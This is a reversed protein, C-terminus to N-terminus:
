IHVVYYPNVERMIVEQNEIKINVSNFDAGIGEIFLGHNPDYSFKTVARLDEPMDVITFQESKFDFRYIENEYFGLYYDSFYTVSRLLPVNYNSNEIYIHNNDDIFLELIPAQENSHHYIKDKSILYRNKGMPVFQYEINRSISSYFWSPITGMMQFQIREGKSSLSYWESVGNFSANYLLRSDPLIFSPPDVFFADVLYGDFINYAVFENLTSHKYYYIENVSDFYQNSYSSHRNLNVSYTFELTGENNSFLILNDGSWDLFYLREGTENSVVGQGPGNMDVYFLNLDEFTIKDSYDKLKTFLTGYESFYQDNESVSIQHIKGTDKEVIVYYSDYPYYSEVGYKSEPNTFFNEAFQIFIFNGKTELYIPYYDIEYDVISGFENKFRLDSSDHNDDIMVLEPLDNNLGLGINYVGELDFYLDSLEYKLTQFTFRNTETYKNGDIIYSFECVFDYVTNSKLGSIMQDTPLDELVITEDDSTITIKEVTVELDFTYKVFDIQIDHYGKDVLNVEAIKASKFTYSQHIIVQSGEGDLLDMTSAVAIRYNKSPLLQDFQIQNQGPNLEVFDLMADYYFLYIVPKSSNREILNDNDIVEVNANYQFQNFTRNGITIQISNEYRVAMSITRDGEFEADKIDNSINEVYKIEDITLERVGSVDGANVKVILVESTSGEEFEFSQYVVGNLTFRLIVQSDPNDLIVRVYVDENRAAYYSAEPQEPIEIIPIDDLNESRSFHNRIMQLDTMSILTNENGLEMGKYTPAVGYDASTCAVIFLILLSMFMSISKKM